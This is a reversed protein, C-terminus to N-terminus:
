KKASFALVSEGGVGHGVGEMSDTRRWETWYQEVPHHSQLLAGRKVPISSFSSLLITARPDFALM